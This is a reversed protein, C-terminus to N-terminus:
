GSNTSTGLFVVLVATYAATAALVDKGTSYNAEVAVTIPFVIIAVSITILNTNRSHNHLTIILVSRILAIGSFLRILIRQTLAQEKAREVRGRQDLERFGLNGCVKEVTDLILSPSGEREEPQVLM